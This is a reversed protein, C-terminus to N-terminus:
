AAFLWGHWIGTVAEGGADEMEGRKDGRAEDLKAVAHGWVM